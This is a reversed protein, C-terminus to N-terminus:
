LPRLDFGTAQLQCIRALAQTVIKGQPSLLVVRKGGCAKGAIPAVAVCQQLSRNPKCWGMVVALPRDDSWAISDTTGPAFDHARINILVAARSKSLEM